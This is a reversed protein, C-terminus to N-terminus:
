NVLNGNIYHLGMAGTDGGSVCGFNLAYGEAEATHVDKFRETADRVIKILAGPDSQQDAPKTIPRHVHPGQVQAMAQSAGAALLALALAAYQLQRTRLNNRM